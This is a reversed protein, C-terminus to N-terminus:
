EDPLPRHEKKCTKQAMMMQKASFFFIKRKINLGFSLIELQLKSVILCSLAIAGEVLKGM